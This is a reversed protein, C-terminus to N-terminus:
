AAASARGWHSGMPMREAPQYQFAPLVQYRDPNRAIFEATDPTPIAPTDTRIRNRASDTMPKRTGLAEREMRAAARELSRAHNKVKDRLRQRRVREEDSMRSRPAPPPRVLRAAARKERQRATQREQKVIRNAAVKAIHAPDDQMPPRGVTWGSPGGLLLGRLRMKRLCGAMRRVPEGLAAALTKTSTGPTAAIIGRMRSHLTETGRVGSM